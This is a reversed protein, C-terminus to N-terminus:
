EFTSEWQFEIAPEGSFPCRSVGNAMPTGQSSLFQGKSVVEESELWGYFSDKWEPDEVQGSHETLSPSGEVPVLPGFAALCGLRYALTPNGRGDNDEYRQRHIEHGLAFLHWRLDEPLRNANMFAVMELDAKPGTNAFVAGREPDEIEELIERARDEFGLQAFSGAIHLWAFNTAARPNFLPQFDAPIARSEAEAVTTAELRPAGDLLHWAHFVAAISHGTPSVVSDSSGGYIGKRSAPERLFGSRDTASSHIAVLLADALSRQLEYGELGREEIVDILEITRDHAEAVKGADLASKSAALREGYEATYDPTSACGVFGLAALCLLRATSPDPSM